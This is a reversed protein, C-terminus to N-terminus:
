GFHHYVLISYDMGVGLIISAFGISIVNLSGFFVRAAVLGALLAFLQLFMIWGLPRLTRYFIWFAVALLFVATVVM